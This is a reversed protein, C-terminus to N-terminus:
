VQYAGCPPGNCLIQVSKTEKPSVKNAKIKGVLGIYTTDQAFTISTYHVYINTSNHVSDKFDWWGLTCEMKGKEGEKGIMFKSSM